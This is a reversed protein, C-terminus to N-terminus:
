GKQVDVDCRSRALIYAIGFPMVMRIEHCLTANMVQNDEFCPLRVWHTRYCKLVLMIMILISCFNQIGNMAVVLVESSRVTHTLM